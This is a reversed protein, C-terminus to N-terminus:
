YFAYIVQGGGAAGPDGGAAPQGVLYRPLLPRQVSSDTRIGYGPRQHHLQQYNPTASFASALLSQAHSLMRQSATLINALQIRTQSQLQQPRQQQEVPYSNSSPVKLPTTNSVHHM